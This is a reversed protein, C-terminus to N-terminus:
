ETMMADFSRADREENMVAGNRTGEHSLKAIRHLPPLLRQSIAQEAKSSRNQGKDGEAADRWPGIHRKARM